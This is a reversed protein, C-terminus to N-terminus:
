HRSTYHVAVSVEIRGLTGDDGCTVTINYSRKGGADTCSKATDHEGSPGTFHVALAAPTREDIYATPNRDCLDGIETGHFVERMNAWATTAPNYFSCNSAEFRIRSSPLSSGPADPCIAATPWEFRYHCEHEIEVLVPEGPGSAPACRFAVTASLNTHPDHPCPDGHFYKLLVTDGAVVPQVEPFGLTTENRQTTGDFITECAAAGGRCSLGYQPVLPRCVNLFYRHTAPIGPGLRAEYNGGSRVLPTLDVFQDPASANYAGCEPQGLCAYSTVFHVVLLCDGDEAVVVLPELRAQDCIFEIRTEWRRGQAPDCDAGSQYRLVPGKEFRLEDNVRGLGVTQTGNHLTECAGWDAGCRFGPLAPARCVALEYTRNDGGATVAYTRGALPSLDLLNHLACPRSANRCALETRWVFEHTCSANGLYQVEGRGDGCEFVIRSQECQGPTGSRMSMVLRGQEDVTPNAVTQGFDRYRRSRDPETENVFCVSSGPPCMADHGYHVPKCVSLIFRSGGVGVPVEHNERGLALLRYEHAGDQVSCSNNRVAAPLPLCALPTDWFIFYRCSDTTHPLVRLDDPNREYRCILIIDLSFRDAVASDGKGGKAGCPEGEFRFQLRGDTLLLRADQGLSVNGTPRKLYAGSPGSEGGCVNFFFREENEDDSSVHRQLDSSLAHFDFTQNYLPERLTCDTGNVVLMSQEMGPAKAAAVEASPLWLVLLMVLQATLKFEPRRRPAGM